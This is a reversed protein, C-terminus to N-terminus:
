GQLNYFRGGRIIINENMHKIKMFVAILINKYIVAYTDTAFEITKGEQYINGICVINNIEDYYCTDEFLMYMEGSYPIMEESTYYLEGKKSEPIKLEKQIVKMGNMFLRMPGCKGNEHSVDMLLRPNGGLSLTYDFFIEKDSSYKFLVSTDNEM